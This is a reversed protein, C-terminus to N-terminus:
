QHQNLDWVVLGTLKLHVIGSCGRVARNPYWWIQLEFNVIHLPFPRIARVTEIEDVDAVHEAGDCIPGLQELLAHPLFWRGRRGYSGVRVPALCRLGPPQTSTTSISM